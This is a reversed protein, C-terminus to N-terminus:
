ERLTAGALIPVFLRFAMAYGQALPRFEAIRLAPLAVSKSTLGIRFTPERPFVKARFPWQWIPASM